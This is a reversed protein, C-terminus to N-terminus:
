PKPELVEHFNQNAKKSAEQLQEQAQEMRRSGGMVALSFLSLKEIM